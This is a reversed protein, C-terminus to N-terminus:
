TQAQSVLDDIISQFEAVTIRVMGAPAQKSYGDVVHITYETEGRKKSGREPPNPYMGYEVVEAYPLNNTLYHVYGLMLKTSGIVAAERAVTARGEDSLDETDITGSPMEGAGYQWNARLMGTDVPTRKVVTALMDLLVKRVAKNAREEGVEIMKRLDLRFRDVSSM